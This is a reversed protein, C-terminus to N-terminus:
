DELQDIIDTKLEIDTQYENYSNGTWSENYSSVIVVKSGDSFTLELYGKDDYEKRKKQKANIITKGILYEFNM